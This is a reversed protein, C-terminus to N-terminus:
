TTKVALNKPIYCDLLNIVDNVRLNSLPALQPPVNLAKVRAKSEPTLKALKVPADLKVALGQIGNMHYGICFYIRIYDRLASTARVINDSSEADHITQGIVTKTQKKTDTHTTTLILNKGRQKRIDAKSLVQNDDISLINKEYTGPYYYNDTADDIFHSIKFNHMDLVCQKGAQNIYM